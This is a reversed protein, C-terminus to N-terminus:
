TAQLASVKETTMTSVAPAAATTPWIAENTKGLIELKEAGAPLVTFTYSPVVSSPVAVSWSTSRKRRFISRIRAHAHPSRAFAAQLMGPLTHDDVYRGQGTLLRPDEKRVVHQGVYRAASKEHEAM